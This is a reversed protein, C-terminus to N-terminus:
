VQYEDDATSEFRSRSITCFLEEYVPWSISNVSCVFDEKVNFFDGNM